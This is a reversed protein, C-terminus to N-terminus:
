PTAQSARVFLGADLARGSATTLQLRGHASQLQTHRSLWDALDAASLTASHATFLLASASPTLLQLCDSLLSPLDRDIDWRQGQAGHGYSPPDLVIIDYRSGRRLEREVFKRADEVIWRIPHNELANLQANHRAWKVTPASADVHVIHAGAAALALTSGGTYAFLNLAHLTQTDSRLRRATEALWTWNPWQEPFLGVHGFPTLRLSFDINGLSCLWSDPLTQGHRIRGEADIVVDAQDWNCGSQKPVGDAAPCPRDLIWEGFRELKRAQGFDILEYAKM